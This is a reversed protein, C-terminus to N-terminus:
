SNKKTVYKDKLDFFGIQQAQQGLRQFDAASIKGSREGVEKVFEKGEYAVKGDSYLTVKYVPCTGFCATRELTIESIDSSNTAGFTCVMLAGFVLTTCPTKM